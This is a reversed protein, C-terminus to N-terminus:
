LPAPRAGRILRGPLSGTAEGNHYTAVGSVITHLYGDARQMLRKGGAPLDYRVEPRRLRLNDFDIVNIDARFGPALVGRDHLGIFRATEASQQAVIFPVDLRGRQRDRGWHELLTTPFSADCIAGVHAGGDSLGPVTNPHELMEKVMDLNGMYNTLPVYIMGEGNDALLIDYVLEAPPRGEHAARAAISESPEPEYNPPDQLEFMLDWSDLWTAGLRFDTGEPSANLLRERFDTNRMAAARETASLHEITRFIPNTSFPNLTCQLGYLVGIARPAVQGVIRRGAANAAEIRSMLARCSKGEDSTLATLTFWLPMSSADVMQELMDFEDDISGFNNFDEDHFDSVVQLVGSGAKGAEAAIAICEHAAAGFAPTHAGRSTKHIGVRDTSFGLAGQEIGIRALRAMEAIDDDTADERDAGRQGMVYLRLPDHPVYVGMDVDHHVGELVDLYEGFTEWGWKLGEHMATGPIDEVGEMLEILADHDSDRVPAFGVGCNGAVVTTVGHWSSPQLVNEWTAQADYHTHVDVWGPTVLAGDADIERRGTGEVRGVAVITGGDIALDALRAADGTGDVVSGGRIVLDFEAM